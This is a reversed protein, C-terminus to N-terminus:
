KFARFLLSTFGVQVVWNEADDNLGFSVALDIIIKRSIAHNVGFDFSVPNSLESAEGYIEVYLGVPASLNPSLAVAYTLANSYGGDGQDTFVGAFTGDMQGIPFLLSTVGYLTYKPKTNNIFEIRGVAAVAGWDQNLLQTKIQFGPAGFDYDEDSHDILGSMIFGLEFNEHFSFKLLLPLNWFNRQLALGFELETYGLHTLYANDTASPRTPNPKVEEQTFGLNPLLVYCSM